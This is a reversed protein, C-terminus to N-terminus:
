QMHDEEAHLLSSVANSGGCTATFERMGIGSGNMVRFKTKIRLPNKEIIM